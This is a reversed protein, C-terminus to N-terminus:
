QRGVAEGLWSQSVTHWGGWTGESLAHLTLAWGGPLLLVSPNRQTMRIGSAGVLDAGLSDLWSRLGSMWSVRERRTERGPSHALSVSPCPLAQTEAAVSEAGLFAASECCFAPRRHSLTTCGEPPTSLTGLHLPLGLEHGSM